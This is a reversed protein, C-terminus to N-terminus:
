MWPKSCHLRGAVHWCTVEEIVAWVFIATLGAVIVNFLLIRLVKGKLMWLVILWQITIIFVVLLAYAASYGLAGYKVYAFKECFGDDSICRGM